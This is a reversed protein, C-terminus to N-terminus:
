PLQDLPRGAGANFAYLVQAPSLSYNFYACEDYIGLGSGAQSDDSGITLRTDGRRVGLSGFALPQVTRAGDISMWINSGDFGLVIHYWTNTAPLPGPSRTISTILGNTDKTTFIFNGTGPTVQANYAFAWDQKATNSDHWIGLQTNGGSDFNPNFWFQFSLPTNQARVDIGGSIVLVQRPFTGFTTAAARNIKGTAVGFNANLDTANWGNIFDFRTGNASENMPWYALMGVHQPPRAGVIGEEICDEAFRSPLSLDNGTLCEEGKINPLIIRM